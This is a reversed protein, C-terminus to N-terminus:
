PKTLEEVFSFLQKMMPLSFLLIAVRGALEVKGALATEGSDRCIDATTATLIGIGASKMLITFYEEYPNDQYFSFFTDTISQLSSLIPVLLILGGAAAVAPTYAPNYHKVLVAAICICLAAGCLTLINM